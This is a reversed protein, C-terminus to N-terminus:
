GQQMAESLRVASATSAAAAREPHRGDCTVRGLSVGAGVPAVGVYVTAGSVGDGVRDGVTSGVGAGVAGGGGGRV